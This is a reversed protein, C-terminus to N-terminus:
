GLAFVVAGCDGRRDEGFDRLLNEFVEAHRVVDIQPGHGGRRHGGRRLLRRGYLFVVCRRLTFINLSKVLGGVIQGVVIRQTARGCRLGGCIRLGRRCGHLSCTRWGALIGRFRAAVGSGRGRLGGRLSRLRGRRRGRICHDDGVGRLQTHWREQAERHALHNLFRATGAKFHLDGAAPGRALLRGRRSGHNRGAGFDDDAAGPLHTLRADHRIKEPM